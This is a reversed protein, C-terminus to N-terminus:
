DIYADPTFVEDLGDWHRQDISNAYHVILREIEMRDSLEQLSMM